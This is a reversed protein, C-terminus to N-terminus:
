WSGSWGSRAPAGNVVLLYRSGPRMAWRATSLRADRRIAHVSVALAVLAVALAAIPAVLTVDM